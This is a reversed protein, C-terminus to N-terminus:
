SWACALPEIFFTAGSSSMDHAIGAIQGRYEQKVPVVYRNERITVIPEQLYKVTTLIKSSAIWVSVKISSPVNDRAKRRINALNRRPM